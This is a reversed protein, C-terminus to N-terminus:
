ITSYFRSSCRCVIYYTGPAPADFTLFESNNSFEGTAVNMSDVDICTGLSPCNDSLWYVYAFQDNADVLNTMKVQIFEVGPDVTVQYFADQGTTATPSCSFSSFQNGAGGSTENPFFSGCEAVKADANTKVVVDFFCVDQTGSGDTATLKIEHVGPSLITNFPFDQTVTIGGVSCGDTTSVATYDGLTHQCNVLAFVTDNPPCADISVSCPAIASCDFSFVFHDAGGNWGSNTLPDTTFYGDGYLEGGVSTRGGGSSISKAIIDENSVQEFAWSILGSNDSAMVFCSRDNAVIPTTGGFNVSDEFSGCVMVVNCGPEYSIGFAEDTGTGGENWETQISGLPNYRAVFADLGGNTFITDNYTFPGTFAPTEVFTTSDACAGVIYVQGGM